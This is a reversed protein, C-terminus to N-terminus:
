GQKAVSMTPAPAMASQGGRCCRQAGCLMLLSLTKNAVIVLVSGQVGEKRAEEPLLRGPKLKQSLRRCQEVHSENM